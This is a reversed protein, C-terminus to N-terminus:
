PEYPEVYVLTVGERMAKEDFIDGKKFHIGIHEALRDCNRKMMSANMSPPSYKLFLDELGTTPGKFADHM